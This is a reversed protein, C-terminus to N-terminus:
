MEVKEGSHSTRAQSLEPKEVQIRQPQLPHNFTLQQLWIKGTLFVRWRERWNLKWCSTVVGDSGVHSPLDLYEEQDKAMVVNQEPFNQPEM